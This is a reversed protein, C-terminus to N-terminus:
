TKLALEQSKQNRNKRIRAAALVGGGTMFLISSIPEPATAAVSSTAVWGSGQPGPTNQIHAATLWTSNGGGQISNFNFSNATLAAGSYKIDYIVVENDTFKESFQGPPPPFNFTIDYFGDGDAKFANTGTFIGNNGQGNQPNSASNDVAQFTLGSPNLNPDLNFYWEDVNEQGPALNFASLTLRVDWGPAAAADDFTASLWPSPEAPTDGSIVSDYLFTLANAHAFSATMVIFLFLAPVGLIRILKLSCSKM